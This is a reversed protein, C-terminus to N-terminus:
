NGVVGVWVKSVSGITSTVWFPAAGVPGMALATITLHLTDGNQGETKDFQFSLAPQASGFFASSLDVAAVQWPGSTPGDSYLDVDITKSSGIAIQVGRTTFPPFQSGSVQVSDNMVPASNFYPSTGFPVCPDHGAAAAVNSWVRQVLNTMGPPVFFADPNAACMDGIEPGAVLEWGQDEMDLEIFAPNSTPYPDTAAEIIEHSAEATVQDIEAVNPAASPCRGVVGYAVLTGASTALNDHYGQFDTCLSGLDAGSGMTVVTGQPYYIVYITNEDPAPVTKAAIERALWLQLDADAITTPAAESLTVGTIASLPGVGYEATTGAWYVTANGLDSMFNDIDAQLPDGQFTIEVLKPSKIVPGGASVVRPTSPHPAPYTGGGSGGGGGCGGLAAAVCGLLLARVIM